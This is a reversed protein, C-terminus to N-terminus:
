NCMKRIIPASRTEIKELRSEIEYRDGSYEDGRLTYRHKKIFLNEPSTYINKPKNKVYAHIKEDKGQFNRLLMRPVVHQRKPNQATSVSNM